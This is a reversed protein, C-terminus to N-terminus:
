IVTNQDPVNGNEQLVRDALVSNVPAFDEVDWILTPAKHFDELGQSQAETKTDAKWQKELAFLSDCFSPVGEKVKYFKQESM